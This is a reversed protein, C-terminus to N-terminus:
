APSQEGAVPDKPKEEKAKNCEDKGDTGKGGGGEGTKQIGKSIM